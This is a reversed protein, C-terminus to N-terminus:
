EADKNIPIAEVFEKTKTLLGVRDAGHFRGCEEGNVVMIFTPLKEIDKFEDVFEADEEIDVTIFDCNKSYALALEEFVPQIAHCPGCWQASFKIVRKQKPDIEPTLVQWSKDKYFLPM